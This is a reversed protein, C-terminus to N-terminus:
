RRESAIDAMAASNTVFDAFRSELQILSADIWTSFDATHAAAVFDHKTPICGSTLPVTKEGSTSKM